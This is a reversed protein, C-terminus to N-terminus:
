YIVVTNTLTNNFLARDNKTTVAITYSANGRKASAPFEVTLVARENPKLSSLKESEFTSGTPLETQFSWESSTKDGINHVAFQLAGPEDQQVLGTKVFTGNKIVGFGIVTVALDIEGNPNSVPTAYLYTPTSSVVPKPKAPTSAIPKPITTQPSTPKVVPAPEPTVTPTTAVETTTTATPKPVEAETSTAVTVTSILQNVVTLSNTTVATETTANSRYFSVTYKIDVFREKTSNIVLTAATSTGLDYPTNCTILPFTKDPTTLSVVINDQCEYAFSFTGGIVPKNWTITVPSNVNVLTDSATVNIEEVTKPNHNYVSNAISALSNLASPFVQVIQIAVWAIFIILGLLGAVALAKVVPQKQEPTFNEM